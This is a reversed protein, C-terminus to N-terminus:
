SLGAHSVCVRLVDSTGPPAAALVARGTRVWGGLTALAARACEEEDDGAGGDADRAEEAVAYDGKNARSSRAAAAGTGAELADAIDDLLRPLLKQRRGRGFRAGVMYGVYTFALRCLRWPSALLCSALLPMAERTLPALAERLNEPAHLSARLPATIHVAEGDVARELCRAAGWLAIPARSKAYAALVALPTEMEHHGDSLMVNCGEDDGCLVRRLSAHLRQVDGQVLRQVSPPLAQRSASAVGAIVPQACANMLEEGGKRFAGDLLQAGHDLLQQVPAPAQELTGMRAAVAALRDPTTAHQQQQPAHNTRVSLNGISFGSASGVLLLLLTVYLFFAPHLTIETRVRHTRTCRLIVLSNARPLHLRLSTSESKDLPEATAEVSVGFRSWSHIIVAPASAARHLGPPDVKPTGKEMLSRCRRSRVHPPDADLVTKPTRDVEM